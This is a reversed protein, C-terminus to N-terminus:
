VTVDVPKEGPADSPTNESQQGYVFSVSISTAQEFHYVSRSDIKQLQDMASAGQETAGTGPADQSKIVESGHKDEGRLAEFLQAREQKLYELLKLVGSREGDSFLDESLKAMLEDLYKRLNEPLKEKANDLLGPIGLGLDEGKGLPHSDYYDVRQKVSNLFSDVQSSFFNAAYDLGDPGMGLAKEIENFLEDTAKVFEEFDSQKLNLLDRATAAWESFVVPDLQSMKEAAGDFKGLFSFDLSLGAEFRRYLERSISQTGDPTRKTYETKMYEAQSYYLDLSVNGFIVGTSPKYTDGQGAASDPPLTNAAGDPLGDSDDRSSLPGGPYPTQALPLYPQYLNNGAAPDM